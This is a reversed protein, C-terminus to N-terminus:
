FLFTISLLCKTRLFHIPDLDSHLDCFVLDYEEPKQLAAQCKCLLGASSPRILSQQDQDDKMAAEVETNQGSSSFVKARACIIVKLALIM